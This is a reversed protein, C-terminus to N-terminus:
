SEQEELVLDGVNTTLVMGDGCDEVCGWEQLDSYADVQPASSGFREVYQLADWHEEGMRQLIWAVMISNM